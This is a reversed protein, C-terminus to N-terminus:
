STMNLEAKAFTRLSSFVPCDEKCVVNSAVIEDSAPPNLAFTFSSSVVIFNKVGARSSYSSFTCSYSVPEVMVETVAAVSSVPLKDRTVNM